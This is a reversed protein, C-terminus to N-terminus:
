LNNGIIDDQSDIDFWYFNEGISSAKIININLKLEREDKINEDLWNKLAPAFKEQDDEIKKATDMLIDVHVAMMPIVPCKLLKPTFLEQFRTPIIDELVTSIKEPVKRDEVFVHLLNRSAMMGRSPPGIMYWIGRPDIVLDAPLLLMIKDFDKISTIRKERIYKMVSAMTFLPGRTYDIMPDPPIVVIDREQLHIIVFKEIVEYMYGTGMYVREIGSKFLGDILRELIPKYEEQDLNKPDKVAILSKPVPHSIGEPLQRGALGKFNFRKGEGAALIIAHM